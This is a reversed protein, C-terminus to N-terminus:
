IFFFRILEWRDMNALSDIIVEGLITRDDTSPLIGLCEKIDDESIDNLQGQVLHVSPQASSHLPVCCYILIALLIEKMDINTNLDIRKNLRESM